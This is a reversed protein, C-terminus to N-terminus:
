IRKVEKSDLTSAKPAEGSSVNEVGGESVRLVSNSLKVYEEFGAVDDGIATDIKAIEPPIRSNAPKGGLIKWFGSAALPEEQVNELTSAASCIETGTIIDCAM